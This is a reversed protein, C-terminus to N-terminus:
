TGTVRLVGRISYKYMNTWLYQDQHCEMDYNFKFVGKSNSWQVLYYSRM